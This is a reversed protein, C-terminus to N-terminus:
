DNTISDFGILIPDNELVPKKPADKMPISFSFRAGQGPASEAWLRGHHGAIIETCIALGLGAGKHGNGNTPAGAAASESFLNGLREPAIGEGDDLISVTLEEPSSKSATIVVKQKAFGLANAILNRLVQAILDPDVSIPPLDGDMEVELKQESGTLKFEQAIEVITQAMDTRRPRMNFRGSQIQALDLLNDIIRTQRDVNRAIMDVMKAQRPTMSETGEKLCYAATKMTALTNRLEHSVRGLFQDKVELARLGQKIEERLQNPTQDADLLEEIINSLRKKEIAYRISRKLLCCDPSGKILYDQAGLKVAQVALPEDQLGTLVIVPLAPKMARIKLFGELGVSQPLVLDILIVDLEERALLHCATSIRAAKTLAFPGAGDDAGTLYSGIIGAEDADDEVILVRTPKNDM